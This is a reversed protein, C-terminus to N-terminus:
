DLLISIQIRIADNFSAASNNSKMKWPLLLPILLRLLPSVLKGEEVDDSM